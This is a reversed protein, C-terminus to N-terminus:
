TSYRKQTGHVDFFANDTRNAVVYGVTGEKTHTRPIDHAQRTTSITYGQQYDKAFQAVINMRRMAMESKTALFGVAVLAKTDVETPSQTNFKMTNM